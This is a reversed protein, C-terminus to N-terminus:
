INKLHMEELTPEFFNQNINVHRQSNVIVTHNNEEFLVLLKTIKAFYGRLFSGLTTEVAIVYIKRLSVDAYTLFPRM